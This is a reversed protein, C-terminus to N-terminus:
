RNSELRQWREDIASVAQEPTFDSKVWYDAAGLEIVENMQLPASINSFVIIQAQPGADYRELYRKMFDLGGMVPMMMDLLIVDPKFRGSVELAEEGNVAVAVPYGELEFKMAYIERIVDDDEVILVRPQM